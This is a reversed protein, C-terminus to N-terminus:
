LGTTRGRRAKEAEAEALAKAEADADRKAKAEDAKAEDDASKSIRASAGQVELTPNGKAKDALKDDVEVYKGAEETKGFITQEEADGLAEKKIRVKM